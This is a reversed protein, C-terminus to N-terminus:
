CGRRKRPWCTTAPSTSTCRGRGSRRRRRRRVSRADPLDGGHQDRHRRRRVGSDHQACRRRSAHERSSLDLAAVMGMEPSSSSRRRRGRRVRRRRRQQDAVVVHAGRRALLLAVERGIGSGGGVVLAIKRSFEREAPMRQLKAEELAWYEIRFAESRPLAVYNHFSTFAAAQEPRRAQPLARPTAESEELATAGAMVHVANVFFETTIRAERKDKGFGFVGLAPIVVVSPNSDRLAPSGAQACSTYYAVYEDRYRGITSASGSSCDRSTKASGSGVARVDSLHADAPLSRSLEHGDPLARRGLAFERVDLADDSTDFHAISAAIRRCPAACIRCFRRRSRRRSRGGGDGGAGGFLPRGSARAHDEVFEGMQDITKISNVYCDHQTDGWTFLGHSGLLIGDCGPHEEVARRLMM